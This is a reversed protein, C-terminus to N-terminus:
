REKVRCDLTLQGGRKLANIYNDVRIKAALQDWTLSQGAERVGKVVLYSSLRQLKEQTQLGKLSVRFSQWDPDNIAWAIDNRSWSGVPLVWRDMNRAGKM